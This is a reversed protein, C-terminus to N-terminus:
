EQAWQAPVDRSSDGRVTSPRAPLACIGHLRARTDLRSLPYIWSPLSTSAERSSHRQLARMNITVPLAAAVNPAAAAATGLLVDYDLRLIVGEQATLFM